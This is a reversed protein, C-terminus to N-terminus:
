GQRSARYIVKLDEVEEELLKIRETLTDLRDKNLISRRITTDIRETM